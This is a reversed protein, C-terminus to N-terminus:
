EVILKGKMGMARHNGVACYYEFTGSQDATFTVIEESPGKVQNTAVKFEDIVFNHFGEINKFIIKVNDGKNVKIEPIDFKFNSGTITFEKSSKGAASDTSNTMEQPSPSVTASEGSQETTSEKIEENPSIQRNQGNFFFWSAGAIILIVIIGIILNKNM